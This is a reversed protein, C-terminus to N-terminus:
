GAEEGFFRLPANQEMRLKREAFDEHIAAEHDLLARDGIRQRNQQTLGADQGVPGLRMPPRAIDKTMEALEVQAPVRAAVDCAM